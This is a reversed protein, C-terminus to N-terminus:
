KDGKFRTGHPPIGRARRDAHFAYAHPHATKLWAMEADTLVNSQVRNHHKKCLRTTPFGQITGPHDELPHWSSRVPAGCSRCTPHLCDNSAKCPKQTQITTTTM